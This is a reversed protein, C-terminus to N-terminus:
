IGHQFESGSKYPITKRPEAAHWRGRNLEENERKNRMSQHVHNNMCPPITCMEGRLGYSVLVVDKYVIKLMFRSKKNSQSITLQTM